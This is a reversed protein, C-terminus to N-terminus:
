AKRTSRKMAGPSSSIPTFTQITEETPNVRVRVHDMKSVWLDWCVMVIGREVGQEGRWVVEVAEMM